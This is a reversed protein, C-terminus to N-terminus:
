EFVLDSIDFDKSSKLIDMFGYNDDFINIDAVNSKDDFTIALCKGNELYFVLETNDVPSQNGLDFKQEIATLSTGIKIDDFQSEKYFKDTYFTSVIEGYNEDNKNDNYLLFLYKGTDTIKVISYSYDNTSDTYASDLVVDPVFCVRSLMSSQYDPLTYMNFESIETSEVGPVTDWFSANSSCAVCFIAMMFGLIALTLAKIKKYM